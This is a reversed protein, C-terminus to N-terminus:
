DQIVIARVPCIYSNLVKLPLVILKANFTKIKELNICPALILINAPYFKAFIGEPNKPNEWEASDTGLLFPKKEIIYDMAEKKFFWSKPFFNNREWFKSYGTGVLIAAGPPISKKESNKIDQLSIFKKGDKEQLNEYPINLIYADIMFLKEVPIESVKYNNGKIYQGPSELYTGTQAKFGQFVDLSYKEGGFEFNLPDLKFNGLLSGLPESYNWMGDYIPGTIDTIKM